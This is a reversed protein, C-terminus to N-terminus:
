WKEGPNAKAQLTYFGLQDEGAARAVWKRMQLVSLETKGETDCGEGHQKGGKGGGGARDSEDLLRDGLDVGELAAKISSFFCDGDDPVRHVKFGHAKQLPGMASRSTLSHTAGGCELCTWTVGEWGPFPCPRPPDARAVSGQKGSALRRKRKGRTAEGGAVGTSSLVVEEPVASRHVNGKFNGQDGGSAGSQDSDPATMGGSLHDGTATCTSPAPADPSASASGKGANAGTPVAPLDPTSAPRQNEQVSQPEGIALGIAGFAKIEGQTSDKIVGAKMLARTGAGIKRETDATKAGLWEKPFIESGARGLELPTSPSISVSNEEDRADPSKRDSGQGCQRGLLSLRSSQSDKDEKGERKEGIKRPTRHVEWGQRTRSRSGLVRRADVTGEGLGGAWAKRAMTSCIESARVKTGNESLRASHHCYKAPGPPCGGIAPVRNTAQSLALRSPAHKKLM